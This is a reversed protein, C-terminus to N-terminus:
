DYDPIVRVWPTGIRNGRVDRKNNPEFKENFYYSLRVSILHNFLKRQEYETNYQDMVFGVTMERIPVISHEWRIGLSLNKYLRIDVDALVSWDSKNYVKPLSNISTTRVFGNYIEKARVLRGWAFGLGFTFGTKMDEYHFLVPIQLYDLSINCKMKPDFPYRRDVDDFLEPAYKTTDFHGAVKYHKYSGKQTYLLEMTVSFTQKRNIPLKVGLGANVGVKTFGHVDDGEIQSFNAGASAFGIFRQAQSTPTLLLLCLLIFSISFLKNMKEFNAAFICFFRLGFLRVCFFGANVAPKKLLILFPNNEKKKLTKKSLNFFTWTM